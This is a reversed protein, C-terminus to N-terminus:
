DQNDKLHFLSHEIGGEILKHNKGILTDHAKVMKKEVWTLNAYTLNREDQNGKLHILSHEIGEDIM